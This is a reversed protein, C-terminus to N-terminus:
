RLTLMYEVLQDIQEASLREGYDNPMFSTGNASYMPGPVLYASPEVISERLYGAVDKAKGTYEPDQIIKAARENVEALSPGAMNVGAVVSHCTFCAATPDRYLAEGHAVDAPAHPGSEGKDTAAITQATGPFTGGSVLIPRPPWGQNDVKSVWDLFAIVQDIEQDSLNPNPMVRRHKAESYFQAPDRMFAKLYPAGRHQTIKTLDPAFYAGEGFLTHCNICNNKHWVKNGAKVDETIQDANTLEDIRAHTDITMGVFIASFGILCVYFFIRAHRKTM